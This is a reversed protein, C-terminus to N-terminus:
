RGYAADVVLALRDVELRLAKAGTRAERLALDLALEHAATDQKRRLAEVERSARRKRRAAESM